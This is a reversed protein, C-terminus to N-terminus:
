KATIFLRGKPRRKKHEPATKDFGDDLDLPALNHRQEYGSEIGYFNGTGSSPPYDMGRIFGPTKLNKSEPAALPDEREGIGAACSWEHDSKLRYALEPGIRGQRRDDKTLWECFADYERGRKGFASFCASGAVRGVM